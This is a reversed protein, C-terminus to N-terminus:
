LGWVENTKVYGSLGDRHKVKLWGSNPAENLELLVTKDATFVVPADEEAEARVKASAVKVVVNRKNSLSKSELWSLNGSADRVKTWEGYTLIIEVPMGRPAVFLKKGKISPADFLVAPANAVSKFELAHGNSAILLFASAIWRSYSM